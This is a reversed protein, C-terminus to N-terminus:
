NRTTSNALISSVANEGFRVAKQAQCFLSDWSEKRLSRAYAELGGQVLRLVQGYAEKADERVPEGKIDNEVKSLYYETNDAFDTFTERYTSRPDYSSSESKLRWSEVDTYELGEMETDESAGLTPNLPDTARDAEYAAVKLLDPNM